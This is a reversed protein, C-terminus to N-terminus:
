GIDKSENLKKLVKDYHSKSFYFEDWREYKDKIEEFLTKAKVLTDNDETFSLTSAILNQACYKAKENKKEKGFEMLFKGIQKGERFKEWELCKFGLTYIWWWVNDSGLLDGFGIKKYDEFLDALFEEISNGSKLLDRLNCYRVYHLPTFGIPAYGDEDREGLIKRVEALGDNKLLNFSRLKWLRNIGKLEMLKNDELNLVELCNM